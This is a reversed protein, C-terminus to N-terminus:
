LKNNFFLDNENPYKLKLENLKVYEEFNDEKLKKSTLYENMDQYPM